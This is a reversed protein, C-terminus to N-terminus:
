TCFSFCISGAKTSRVKETQFHPPSTFQLIKWTGGNDDACGKQCSLRDTDSVRLNCFTSKWSYLGGISFGARCYNSPLTERLSLLYTMKDHIPNPYSQRHSTDSSRKM